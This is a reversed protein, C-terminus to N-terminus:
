CNKGAVRSTIERVVEEVTLDTTDIIIAGPAIALPSDERQSDMQDRRSIDKEIQELTVQCGKELLEQYRRRAREELSATIFFKYDAGPLVKTGTDRGDLIYGGGAAIRQQQAVMVKRVGPIAAVLSVKENVEPLRIERSVDEGDLFTLTSNGPGRDIRIGTERALGEIGGPVQFDLGLRLAKWTLARYMAGTDLYKLGLERGAERAVTSKGAGAPGDITVNVADKKM